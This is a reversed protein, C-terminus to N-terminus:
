GMWAAGARVALVLVIEGVVATTTGVAVVTASSVGLNGLLLEGGRRKLDLLLVVGVVLAIVGGVVLSARLVSGPPVRLM